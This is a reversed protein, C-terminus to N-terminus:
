RRCVGGPYGRPGTPCELAFGSPALDGTQRPVSVQGARISETRISGRRVTNSM